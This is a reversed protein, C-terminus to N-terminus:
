DIDSHCFYALKRASDYACFAISRGHNPSWGPCAYFRIKGAERPLWWPPTNGGRTADEFANKDSPIFKKLLGDMTGESANFKLWAIWADAVEIQRWHINSVDDPPLAGFENQFARELSASDSPEQAPSFFVFCRWIFFVFTLFALGLLFTRLLIRISRSENPGPRAFLVAIMPCIGFVLLIMLSLFPTM